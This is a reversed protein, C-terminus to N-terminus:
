AGKVPNKVVFFTQQFFYQFMFQSCYLIISLKQSNIVFFTQKNFYQLFMIHLTFLVFNNEMKYLQWFTHFTCLCFCVNKYGWTYVHYNLFLRCHMKFRNISSYELVESNINVNLTKNLKQNNKIEKLSKRIKHPESLFQFKLLSCTKLIFFRRYRGRTARIFCYLTSM